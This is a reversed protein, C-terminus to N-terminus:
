AGVGADRECFAVPASEHSLGVVEDGAFEGANVPDHEGGDAGAVEDAMDSEGRGLAVAEGCELVYDAHNLVEVVEGVPDRVEDKQAVLRFVAGLGQFLQHAHGALEALQVVVVGEAGEDGAHLAAGHM